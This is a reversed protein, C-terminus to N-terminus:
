SSWPMRLRPCASRLRVNCDAPSFHHRLAGNLIRNQPNLIRVPLPGPLLPFPSRVHRSFPPLPLHSQPPIRLDGPCLRPRFLSLPRLMQRPIMDGNLMRKRFSRPARMASCSRCSIGTDLANKAQVFVSRANPNPRTASHTKSNLSLFCFYASTLKQGHRSVKIRRVRCHECGQSAKGCYVM